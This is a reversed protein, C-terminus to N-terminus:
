TKANTYPYIMTGTKTDEPWLIVQTKPDRFQDIGNGKVNQFQTTLVQAEAWEGNPGFRVDGVLTKFSNARIYDALKNQDLSKTAEVSQGLVQLTSYALPPLYYGLQDVGSGEAKQQYTKLFALAEPSVFKAWPLFYDYVTIGNLMPGLQAKIGTTQLGVMGGGFMKAKLGAENAARVM